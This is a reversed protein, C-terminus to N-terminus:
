CKEYVTHDYIYPMDSNSRRLIGEADLVRIETTSLGVYQLLEPLKKSYEGHGDVIATLDVNSVRDCEVPMLGAVGTTM